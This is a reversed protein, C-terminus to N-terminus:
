TKFYDCNIKICGNEAGKNVLSDKNSQRIGIYHRLNDRNVNDAWYYEFVGPNFCM